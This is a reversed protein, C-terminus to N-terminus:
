ALCLGPTVNCRNKALEIYKPNLEIGICKRGFELSVQGVTGSGFFPDLVTCPVTKEEGCDCTPQWGTTKFEVTREQQGVASLANASEAKKGRRFDSGNYSDPVGTIREVVREWPAGCKPCCGKVSTGALICPKILDPAFTAFHSEPYPSTAVTWVSRKNRMGSCQESKEMADWRDNFGDHRRSHGRQKDRRQHGNIAAEGHKGSFEAANKFGTEDMGTIGSYIAPEKIAEADYYYRARKTLLFLYEHAKTPRDSVSEPMPNPKHWIIDSRLYWGDAQLAFAVRWPIGCLDKPKLGWSTTKGLAVLEQCIGRAGRNSNQKESLTNESNIGRYNGGGWFSDGLNLFLTGDDRLVRRVGRFVEVMKAVYEEPTKELGIQGSVQYDRLAYYPPSTVCCHVSGSKLKQLEQLADGQIIEATLM